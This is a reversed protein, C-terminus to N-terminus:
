QVKRFSVLVFCFWLSVVGFRFSVSGVTTQSVFRFRWISVFCLSFSVFWFHNKMKHWSNEIQSSRLPCERKIIEAKYAPSM